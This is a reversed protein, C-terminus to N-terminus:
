SERERERERDKEREVGEEEGKSERACASAREFFSFLINLLFQPKIANPLAVPAIILPIEPVLHDPNM